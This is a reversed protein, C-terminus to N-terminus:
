DDLLGRVRRALAELTYPKSLFNIGKDLVGHHAIINETYGSTFLTRMEPHIKTLQESLQRGNMRPMVVDTLLIHIKEETQGALAMAEEGGAAVMVQYGRTGLSRAVLDRVRTDDEVVLITESGGVMAYPEDPSPTVLRESHADMAPLYIKFTTGKGVETYV